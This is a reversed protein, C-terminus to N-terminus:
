VDHGEHSWEDAVQPGPSMGEWVHQAETCLALELLAVIEMTKMNTRGVLDNDQFSLM